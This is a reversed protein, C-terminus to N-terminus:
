KKRCKVYIRQCESEQNVFFLHKKYYRYLINKLGKHNLIYLRNFLLRMFWRRHFCKKEFPIVELVKFHKELESTLGTVTFHRFHHSSVPINIHPVTVHLLGDRSLLHNIRELFQDCINPEIHEYVEMLTAAEFRNNIRGELINTCCFDIGLDSNMAQALRISRESYDIGLLRAGPFLGRLERTLRGDGCGIDVISSVGADEGIKQLLFEIASAYNIGWEFIKTFTFENKYQVFYHYPFVYCDEQVQQQDRLTM